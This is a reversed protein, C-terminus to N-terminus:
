DYGSPLHIRDPRGLKQLNRPVNNPGIKKEAMSIPGGPIEDEVTSAHAPQTTALPGLDRTPPKSCKKNEGITPIIIM